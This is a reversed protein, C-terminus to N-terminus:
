KLLIMSRTIKKQDSILSYFYIGSAATKGYNDKGDWTIQYQGPYYDANNILRRLERGLYDYIILSINSFLSLEFLITTQPNFPNPYNQLLEITGPIINESNDVSTIVQTTDGYLTGNIVAGKLFLHFFIEGSGRYFMGFGNTITAYYRDLGTTDTSDAAGFYNMEMFTTTIGFLKDQYVAKVRAIEYGYVTTSDQYIYMVWQDGQQAYFKYLIVNDVIGNYGYVEQATTDITYNWYFETHIPNIFREHQTLYIKGDPLVSDSINIVQFTDVVTQGEIVWYEWMDGTKYPFWNTSDLGQPFINTFSFLLFAAIINIKKM